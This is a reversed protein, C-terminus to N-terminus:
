WMQDADFHKVKTLKIESETEERLVDFLTIDEERVWNYDEMEKLWNWTATQAKLASEAYVYGEFDTSGGDAENVEISFSFKTMIPRGDMNEAKTVGGVVDEYMRKIYSM